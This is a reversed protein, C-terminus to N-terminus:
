ITVSYLDEAIEFGERDGVMRRIAELDGYKRSFHTLVIKKVGLGETMKVIEPLSAHCHHRKEGPAELYTCDQILLDAGRAIKMLNECVETDGSYVVKRGKTRNSIEDLKVRKGRMVCKGERKIEGLMKDKEDFGFCAAKETDVSVKDNEVFAYSVAPISHKVPISLVHFDPTSFIESIKNGKFPVNKNVVKFNGMPYLLGGRSRMKKAEPAHIYLPESRGEFGMTDILGPIGLCHDGHWHTIFIRDSDNIGIGALLMQRQTGEGCDFLCTFSAAGQYNLCIATHAREKTPVGAATGLITIKIESL